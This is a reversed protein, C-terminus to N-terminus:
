IAAERLATALAGTEVTVLSPMGKAVWAKTFLVHYPFERPGRESFGARGRM